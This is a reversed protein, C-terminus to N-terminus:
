ARAGGFEATVLEPLGFDNIIVDATAKKLKLPVADFETRGEIVRCAFLMAMMETGGIYMIIINLLNSLVKRM